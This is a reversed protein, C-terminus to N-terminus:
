PVVGACVGRLGVDRGCSDLEARDERERRRGGGAQRDEGRRGNTERDGLVAQTLTGDESELPRKKDRVRVAASEM